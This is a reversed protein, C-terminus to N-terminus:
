GEEDGAEVICCRDLALRRTGSHVHTALGSDAGVAESQLLVCATRLDGVRRM